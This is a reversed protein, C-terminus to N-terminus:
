RKQCLYYVGIVAITFITHLQVVNAWNNFFNIELPSLNHGVCIRAIAFLLLDILILQPPITYLWKDRYKLSTAVMIGMTGISAVLVLIRYIDSTTM